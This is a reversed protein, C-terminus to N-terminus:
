KRRRLILALGGLGILATTSPEPVASVVVDDFSAGFRIEDYTVTGGSNRQSMSITNFASQDLAGANRTSISSGLTLTSTDVLYLSITDDLLNTAGWNIQGVILYSTDLSIGAGSSATQTGGTWSAAAANTAFVRAGIGNGSDIMNAGSSGSSLRGTGLSFGGKENSTGGTATKSYMFSFWLEAGHDLLGADGLASSTTVWVDNSNGNDINLQNGANQLNGYTLTQEVITDTQDDSWNGTLGTTSAAKGNLDGATQSFSEYIIAASHAQQTALSFGALMTIAGLRYSKNKIKM